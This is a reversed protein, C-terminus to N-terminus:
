PCDGKSMAEYSDADLMWRWGDDTKIAHVTDTDSIFNATYEITVAISEVKGIGPATTVEEYSDVVDLDSLVIDRGDRCRKFLAEDIAAQQDPHLTQYTRASQGAATQEVVEQIFGEASDGGGGGCGCLALVILAIPGIRM